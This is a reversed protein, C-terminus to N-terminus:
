KFFEYGRNVDDDKKQDVVQAINNPVLPKIIAYLGVDLTLM